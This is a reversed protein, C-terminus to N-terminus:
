KTAEITELVTLTTIAATVQQTAADPNAPLPGTCIPTIQADLVTIENIQKASLKGQQRLNVATNLAAGYAACAQVYKVQADQTTGTFSCASMLMAAAVIGLTILKKM